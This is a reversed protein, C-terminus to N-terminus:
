GCHRRRDLAANAPSSQSRVRSPAGVRLSGASPGDGENVLLWLQKGQLGDCQDIREHGRAKKSLENDTVIWEPYGRERAIRELVRVVRAGPLSTDVEIAPSERSLEDVINLTRFRRGGALQDHTYDMSWAQNIRVPARL